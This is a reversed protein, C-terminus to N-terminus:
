WCRDTRNALHTRVGERDGTEIATAQLRPGRPWLLKGKFPAASPDGPKEQQKKTEDARMDM